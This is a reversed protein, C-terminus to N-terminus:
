INSEFSEELLDQLHKLFGEYLGKISHVDLFRPM